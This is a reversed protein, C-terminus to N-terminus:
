KMSHKMQEFIDSYIEPTLPKGNYDILIKPNKSNNILTQDMQFINEYRSM